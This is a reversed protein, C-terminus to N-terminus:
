RDIWAMRDAPYRAGRVPRAALAADIQARESADLTMRTAALNEELRDLRRTGPIPVVDPGRDLLWALALQAPTCGRSAAIAALAEVLAQNATLNGAEFRPLGRRWDGVPLDDPQRITGTLLGRGLPSYAVLSVGLERCAPLVGQEVERTWLSYESQVAAIPHVAQARRLTAASVESLGLHGVKGAAVLAAMAGVTDEIPVHPDVRHLYYLDIREVGLRALSADCARAVYEPRGDIGLVQGDSGRVFGFKTALVIEDRRRALVDALLRENAGSGYMDATDLLNVGRDLARDLVALSQTRDAPGYFDSMGMCGLGLAAVDLGAIRRRPM